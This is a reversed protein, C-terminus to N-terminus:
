YLIKLTSLKLIKSKDNFSLPSQFHVCLFYLHCYSYIWILCSIPHLEVDDYTDM